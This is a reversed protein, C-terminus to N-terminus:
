GRYENLVVRIGIASTPSVRNAVPILWTRVPDRTLLAAVIVNADIVVATTM